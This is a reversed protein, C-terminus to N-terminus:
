HKILKTLLETLDKQRIPKALYASCGAELAAERDSDFSNATLAVIPTETDFKRINRSAELGDMEPMRIDMLIAAYRMSQAMAVAERGNRARELIHGALMSEVLIYNSDNDEAVLFRTSKLKATPTETTTMSAEQPIDLSIIKMPIWAWFTSGRNEESEFGVSGGAREAISKCISLGLGTGQAFSDLKEFRNFVKSKKEEPIGIGTDQVIIRVGGNECVYGFKIFGERTYKNSNTIFNNIIQATRNKDFEVICDDNKIDCVFLVDPSVKKQFTDYIEQFLASLNFQEYKFNVYGAEFKSVDLIDSILGLLLESNSSVYQSFTSRKVPDDTTTLLESFGVIANLPTRIEHSMNALFASKLRDSEEAKLKAKRLAELTEAQETVDLATALIYTHGDLTLKNKHVNYVRQGVRDGTLDYSYNGREVALRDSEEIKALLENHVLEADNFGIIEERELGTMQCFKDNVMAYAMNNDVSKMFFQCPVSNIFTYLMNNLKETEKITGELKEINTHLQSVDLSVSLLYRHGTPTKIVSRITRWTRKDGKMDITIDFELYGKEITEFDHAREQEIDFAEIHSFAEADTHGIINERAVGPWKYAQENVLVYRLDNDVDKMYLLCPVMNIFTNLMLNNEDQQQMLRVWRTNDRVLGTYVVVEGQPNRQLPIVFLQLNCWQGQQRSDKLRFYVTQTFDEHSRMRNVLDVMMQLDEPHVYEVLDKIPGSQPIDPFGETQYLTHTDTETDFEFQMLDSEQMTLQTRIKAQELSQKYLAQSTVDRFACGIKNVVGNEDKAVLSVEFYSYKTDAPTKRMRFVNRSEKLVGNRLSDVIIRFLHADNIYMNALLQDHTLNDPFITTGSIQERMGTQLNLNWTSIGATRMLMEKDKDLEAIIRRQREDETIDTVCLVYSLKSGDSSLVRRCQFKLDLAGTMSSGYYERVEDTIVLHCVAETMENKVIARKFDDPLLPSDFIVHKRTMYANPDPVGIINFYADNAYEMVGDLNYIAYGVTSVKLITQQEDILTSFEPNGLNSLDTIIAVIYDKGDDNMKYYRFALSAYGTRGFFRHSTKSMDVNIVYLAGNNSFDEGVRPGTYYQSDYIKFKHALLAEKNPIGFISATAKNFDIVTGDMECIVFGVSVLDFMSRFNSFSLQKAPATNIKSNSLIINVHHLCGLLWEARLNLTIYHTGDVNTGVFSLMINKKQKLSDFTDILAHSDSFECAFQNLTYGNYASGSDTACSFRDKRVNYVLMESKSTSLHTELLKFFDAHSRRSILLSIVAATILALFMLLFGLLYM